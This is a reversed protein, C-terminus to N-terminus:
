RLSSSYFYHIPLSRTVGDCGVAILRRGYGMTRSPKLYLNNPIFINAARAVALRWMGFLKRGFYV